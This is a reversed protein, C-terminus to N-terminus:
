HLCKDGKNQGLEPHLFFSSVGFGLAQNIFVSWILSCHLCNKEIFVLCDLDRFLSSVRLSHLCDWDRFISSVGLSHFAYVFINKEGWYNSVRLGQFACVSRIFGTVLEVVRIPNGNWGTVLEAVWIPNGNWGTVLEM